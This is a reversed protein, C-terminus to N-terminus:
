VPKLSVWVSAEVVEKGFVLRVLDVGLSSMGDTASTLRWIFSILVAKSAISIANEGRVLHNSSNLICILATRLGNGVKLVGHTSDLDVSFRLSALLVRDTVFFFDAAHDDSWFGEL